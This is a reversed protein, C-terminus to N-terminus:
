SNTFMNQVSRKISKNHLVPILVPLNKERSTIANIITQLIGFYSSPLESLRRNRFDEMEKLQTQILRFKEM